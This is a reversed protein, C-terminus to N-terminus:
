LHGKSAKKRTSLSDFSQAPYITYLSVGASLQMENEDNFSVVIELDDDNNAYTLGTAENLYRTITSLNIIDNTM